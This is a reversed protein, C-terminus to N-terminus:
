FKVRVSATSFIWMLGELINKVETIMESGGKLVSIIGLADSEIVLLRRDRSLIRALVELSEIAWKREILNVGACIASGISDCVIWGIGGVRSRGFWTADSNMKWCGDLPPILIGHSQHSGFKVEAQVERNPLAKFVQEDICM